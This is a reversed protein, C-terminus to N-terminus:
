STGGCCAVTSSCVVWPTRSCPVSESPRNPKSPMAGPGTLNDTWVASPPVTTVSHVIMQVCRHVQLPPDDTRAADCCREGLRDALVARGDGAHCRSRDFTGCGENVAVLEVCPRACDVFEDAIRRVDDVDARRM